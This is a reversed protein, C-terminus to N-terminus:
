GTFRPTILLGNAPAPRIPVPVVSPLFPDTCVVGVCQRPDGNRAAENSGGDTDGAVADIGLAANDLAQNATITTTATRVTIGTHNREVRNREVTSVSTGADIFIGDSAFDTATNGRIVTDTNASPDVYIGSVGTRLVNDVITTSDAGTGVVVGAATGIAENEAVLTDTGGSVIVGQQPGVFRTRRVTSGSADEVLVGIGGDRIVTDEVTSSHTLGLVVGSTLAGPAVTVDLARVVVGSAQFARVGTVFGVLTGGGVTVDDFGSIDVGNSSTSGSITHGALDVTIGDAGVVIGAGSPCTLDTSLQADTTVTQGCTTIATDAVAPTTGIAIAGLALTLAGGVRWWRGM